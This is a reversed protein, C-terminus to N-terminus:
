LVNYVGVLYLIFFDGVKLLLLDVSYCFVDIVMCLFGYLCLLVLLVEIICM